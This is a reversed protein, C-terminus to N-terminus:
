RYWLTVSVDRSVRQDDYGSDSEMGASIGCETVALITKGGAVPTGTYNRLATWVAEATDRAIKTGTTARDAYCGIAITAQRMQTTPTAFTQEERESEVRWVIYPLAANDAAEDPYIRTSVLTTIGATAKLLYTISEEFTYAPM